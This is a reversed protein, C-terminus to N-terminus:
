FFIFSVNLLLRGYIVWETTKWGNRLLGCILNINIPRRKRVSNLYNWIKQAWQMNCHTNVNYTWKIHQTTVTTFQKDYFMRQKSKWSIYPTNQTAGQVLTIHITYKRMYSIVFYVIFDLVLNRIVELMTKCKYNTKYNVIMVHNVRFNNESRWDFPHYVAKRCIPLIANIRSYFLSHPSVGRLSINLFATCKSFKNYFQYSM